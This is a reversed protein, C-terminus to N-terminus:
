FRQALVAGNSAVVDDAPWFAARNDAAVPLTPETVALIIM